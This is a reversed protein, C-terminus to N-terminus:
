VGSRNTESEVVSTQFIPRIWSLARLIMLNILKKSVIYLKNHVIAILLTNFNIIVSKHKISFMVLM